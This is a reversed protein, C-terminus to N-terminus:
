EISISHKLADYDRMVSEYWGILKDLREELQIPDGKGAWAKNVLATRQELLLDATEELRVLRLQLDDM